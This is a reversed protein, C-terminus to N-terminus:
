MFYFGYAAAGETGIYFTYIYIVVSQFNKLAAGSRNIYLENFLLAM